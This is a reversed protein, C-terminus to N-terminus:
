NQTANRPTTRDGDNECENIVKQCGIMLVFSFKSCIWVNRQHLHAYQSVRKTLAYLTHYACEANRCKLAVAGFFGNVTESREFLRVTKMKLTSCDGSYLCVDTVLYWDVRRFM